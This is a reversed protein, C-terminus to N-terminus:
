SKAANWEGLSAIDEQLDQQDFHPGIKRAGLLQRFEWLSLDALERAKGLSLRGGAYLSLALEQRLELPTLHASDLIDRPIEITTAHMM